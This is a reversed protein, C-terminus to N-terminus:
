KNLWKEWDMSLLPNIDITPISEKKMRKYAVLRHGGDFLKGNNIIIPNLEKNTKLINILYNVQNESIGWGIQTLQNYLNNVNKYEVNLKPLDNADNLYEKFTWINWENQLYSSNHYINELIDTQIESNLDNWKIFKLNLSEEKLIKNELIIIEPDTILVEKSSPIGHGAHRFIFAKYEPNNYIFKKVEWYDLNLKSLDKIYKKPIKFSHLNEGNKCYYDMMKTDNALFAYIGEGNQGNVINFDWVDNVDGAQCRQLQVFDSSINEIEEKIINVITKM